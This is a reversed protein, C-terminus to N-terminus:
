MNELNYKVEFLWQVLLKVISFVSNDYTKYIEVVEM